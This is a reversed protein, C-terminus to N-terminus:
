MRNDGYETFSRGGEMGKENEGTQNELHKVASAIRM